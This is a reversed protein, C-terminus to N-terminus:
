GSYTRSGGIAGHDGALQASVQSDLLSIQGGAPASEIQQGPHLGFNAVQVPYSSNELNHSHDVTRRLEDSLGLDDIASGVEEHVQETIDATM